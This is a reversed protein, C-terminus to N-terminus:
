RLALRLQFDRLGVRDVQVWNGIVEIVLLLFLTFLVFDFFLFFVLILEVLVFFFLFFLVRQRHSAFGQCGFSKGRCRVLLLANLNSKSALLIRSGVTWFAARTQM